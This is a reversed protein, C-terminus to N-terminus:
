RAKGYIIYQRLDVGNEHAMEVIERVSAHEVESLEMMALPSSNLIATGYYDMLDRRLRDVDIEYGYSNM